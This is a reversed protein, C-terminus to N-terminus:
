GVQPCGLSTTVIKMSSVDHPFGLLVYPSIALLITCHDVSSLLSVYPLSKEAFEKMRIPKLSIKFLREMKEMFLLMEVMM